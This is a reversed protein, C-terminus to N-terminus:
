HLILPSVNCDNKLKMIHFRSLGATLMLTSKLHAILTALVFPGSLVSSRLTYSFCETMIEVPKASYYYSWCLLATSGLTLSVRWPLLQHSQVVCTSPCCKQASIGFSWQLPCVCSCIPNLGLPASFRLESLPLRHGTCSLLGLRCIDFIVGRLAPMDVIYYGDWCTLSLLDLVTCHVRWVGFRVSATKLRKVKFAIGTPSAFYIFLGM